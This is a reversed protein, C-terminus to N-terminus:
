SRANLWREASAIAARHLAKTSSPAARDAISERLTEIALSTSSRLNDQPAINSHPASASAAAESLMPDDPDLDSAQLLNLVKRAIKKENDVM